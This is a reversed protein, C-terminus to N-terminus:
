ANLKLSLSKNNNKSITNELRDIYTQVADEWSPYNTYDETVTYIKYEKGAIIYIKYIWNEYDAYYTVDDYVGLYTDNTLNESGHGQSNNNNNNNENNQNNNNNNNNNNENNQNNNNNNNENNENEQNNNENNENEQNNNENGDPIYYFKDVIKEWDENVLRYDSGTYYRKLESPVGTVTYKSYLRYNEDYYFLQDYKQGLYTEKSETSHLLTDLVNRFYSDIMTYDEDTFYIRNTVVSDGSKIEIITFLRNNEDKYYKNGEYEGLYTYDGIKEENKHYFSDLVVRYDSNILRYDSDTIYKKTPTATLAEELIYLRYKSDAYVLKGEYEGLFIDKKDEEDPIITEKEEKVEQKQEETTTNEEVIVKKTEETVVTNTNTNTDVNTNTNTNIETNNLNIIHFYKVAKTATNKAKDTAKVIIKYSGDSLGATKSITIVGKKSIKAVNEYRIGYKDEVLVKLKIKKAKTKNDKAKIKGKIKVSDGSKIFIQDNSLNNIIKPAKKDKKKTKAEAEITFPEINSNVKPAVSFIQTGLTLGVLFKAGKRKIDKINM